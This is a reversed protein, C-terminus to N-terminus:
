EALGRRVTGRFLACAAAIGLAALALSAGAGLFMTAAMGAAAFAMGGMVTAFVPVGRKVPEYVSTWDYRPRGADLALGVFTALLSASLPAAFLAATSAADLPLFVALLVGGVVITPVAVLLNVAAKSLLVTSTPVPATLMLWRASGELSVSPATTSAIGFLFALAWPLLSGVFPLFDAPVLDLSFAGTASGVAVALAAVIALVYGMCSNLLYIPTAVLLRFEKRVLAPLPTGAHGGPTSATAEFSFSGRTHSTMLLSNVPVFLRVLVAVVICAAALNVVAFALFLGTDGQVIGAAAWATPPFAAELQAALQTGMAALVAADDAQGSLALSGVVAALTAALMLVISVINAHRFRASVAAILAALVIALALPLLPALLVSLAMLAVGLVTTGRAAAYVAFAPVMALLGFLASMAYLSAIRSLVVSTTPAPLSMVLDYDKFGFLVGNTKLFAAVAGAVSGVLVAVLPVVEALGLQVLGQAVGAAYGAVLAVVGVAALAALALARKAKAADAHLAKNIGFLGLLQIKLLLIFSRM